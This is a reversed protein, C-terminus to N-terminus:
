LAGESTDRALREDFERELRIQEARAPPPVRERKKLRPRPPRPQRVELVEGDMNKVIVPAPRGTPGYKARATASRQQGRIRREANLAMKANKKMASARARRQKESEKKM